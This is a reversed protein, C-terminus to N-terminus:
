REPPQERVLLELERTRTDIISAEIHDNANGGGGNRKIREQAAKFRVVAGPYNLQAVQAEAEARIAGVAQGAAAYASALAMWATADQAHTVVWTQLRQAALRPNGAHMLAHAQLLLEPRQTPVAEGLLALARAGDEQAMALEAALLRTQRAAGADGQALPQLRALLGQAQAFDRLRLTALIASSLVAMKRAPELREFTLAEAEEKWQRLADPSPNALVRARAAMMAHVPTLAAGPAAAGAAGQPLRLQVDAIRETTLPHSRLYPYAGSDSLRSSLQLKEFM